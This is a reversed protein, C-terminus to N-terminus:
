KPQKAMKAKLRSFHSPSIRLFSSIIKQTVRNELGPYLDCMLKYREIPETIHNLNQRKNLWAHLLEFQIRGFKDGEEVNTYMGQLAKRTIVVCEVDELAMLYLRSPQNNLFSLMSTIFNNEFIFNTAFSNGRKDKLLTCILGSNIFFLRDCYENEKILYEGAKYKKVSLTSFFNNKEEETWNITSSILQDLKEHYSM